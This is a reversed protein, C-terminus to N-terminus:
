NSDYKDKKKELIEIIKLVTYIISICLLLIKLIAETDTFSIAMAFFNLMYIKLDNIQMKVIIFVNLL